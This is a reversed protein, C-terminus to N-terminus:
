AHEGGMRGPIKFEDEFNGFGPDGVLAAIVDASRCGVKSINKIATLYSEASEPRDIANVALEHASVFGFNMDSLACSLKHLQAESLGTRKKDPKGIVRTQDAYEAALTARYRAYLPDDTAIPIAAIATVSAARPQKSTKPTASM